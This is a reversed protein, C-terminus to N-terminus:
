ATREWMYVALYPPLIKGTYGDESVLVRGGFGVSGTKILGAAKADANTSEDANRHMGMSTSGGTTGAAFSSGAGVLFRGQLRSWTGGLFTGPDTSKTSMYISGVPWEKDLLDLDAALADITDAVKDTISPKTLGLRDTTASM